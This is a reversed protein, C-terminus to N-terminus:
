TLRDTLSQRVKGACSFTLEGRREIEDDKEAEEEEANAKKKRRGMGGVDVVVVIMPTAESDGVSGSGDEGAQETSDYTGPYGWQENRRGSGEAAERSM